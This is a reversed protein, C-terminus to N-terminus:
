YVLMILHYPTSTVQSSTATSRMAPDTILTHKNQRRERIMSRLSGGSALRPTRPQDPGRPECVNLVALLELYAVGAGAMDTSLM